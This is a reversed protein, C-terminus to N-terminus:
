FHGNPSLVGIDHEATGKELNSEYQKIIREYDDLWISLWEVSGIIRTNWNGMDPDLHLLREKVSILKKMAERVHIRERTLVQSYTNGPASVAVFLKVLISLTYSVAPGFCLSPLSLMLSPEMILVADITFHCAELLAILARATNPTVQAPCAFDNVGIREAVYPSGFLIKNTATHLVPENVYVAALRQWFFLQVDHALPRSNLADLDNYMQAKTNTAVDSDIDHFAHVNCLELGSAIRAHLRATHLMELFLPESGDAELAHLAEYHSRGWDFVHARRLGFAAMTSTMWSALWTKQMELTPPGQIRFFWAPASTQLESGGLGLEVCLDHAIFALQIPNAHNMSLSPRIWLSMVLAAQILDVSPSKLGVAAKGLIELTKTRLEEQIQPDIESESPSVAFLAMLKVPTESRLSDLRSPASSNDVLPILYWFQAATTSCAKLGKIQSEYDLHADLFGLDSPQTNTTSWNGETSFVSTARTSAAYSSMAQTSAGDLREQLSKVQDELESIRDRQWKRAAPVCTINFRTCRDCTSSESPFECKVKLAQCAECARSRKTM